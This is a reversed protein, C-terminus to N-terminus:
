AAVQLSMAALPGDQPFREAFAPDAPPNSGDALPLVAGHHREPAPTRRRVTPSRRTRRPPPM